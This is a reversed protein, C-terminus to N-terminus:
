YIRRMYIEETNTADYTVIPIRVYHYGIEKETCFTTTVGAGGFGTYGDSNSIDDWFSPTIPHWVKTASTDNTVEITVLCDIVQAGQISIRKYGLMDLGDSSPYYNTGAAVNTTDIITDPIVELNLPNQEKIRYLNTGLDYALDISRIGVEYQVDTNLFPAAGAGLITITNDANIYISIGNKGNEYTTRVHAVSEVTIFTIIHNISKITAPFAALTLITPASYTASGHMPSIWMPSLQNNRLTKLYNDGSLYIAAIEQLSTKLNDGSLYTAAIEQLSTKLNDGSLYTANIEEVSVKFNNLATSLGAAIRELSVPFWSM